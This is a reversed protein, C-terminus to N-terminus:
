GAHLQDPQNLAVKSPGCLQCTLIGEYNHDMNLETKCFSCYITNAVTVPGGEIILAQGKVLAETVKRAARAHIRSFTSRSIGMKVAGLEQDHNCIHM